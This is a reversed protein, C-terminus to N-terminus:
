EANRMALLRYVFGVILSFLSGLFSFTASFISDLASLLASFMNGVFGLIMAFLDYLFLVVVQWRTEGPREISGFGDSGTDDDAPADQTYDYANELTYNASVTPVFLALCLLLALMLSLCKKM